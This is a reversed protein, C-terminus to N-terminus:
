HVVQVRNVSCFTGSTVKLLYIGDPIIDVSVINKGANLVNKLLVQNNLGVIELVASEENEPLVIKFKDSAPNPYILINAKLLNEELGIYLWYLRRM